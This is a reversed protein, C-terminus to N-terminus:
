SLSAEVYKADDGQPTKFPEAGLSAPAKLGTGCSERVILQPPLVVTRPSPDDNGDLRDLLFQMAITGFTRAPQAVVTLFPHLASALEIDDYSVVAMDRPVDIHAARLGEIVGIALFNNAAVIATPRQEVPLQLLQESSSRGGSRTYESEFLLLPDPKIQWARLAQEYGVRRDRATSVTHPGSALAIRHHGLRLLHETLVRSGLINDGEVIDSEIGEVDRDILVFKTGRLRLVDLIKRSGRGAPAILLGDVRNQLMINVYHHEKEVSEDSNGLIIGYANRQAVDEVGRAISTFFPNGIDSVILAVTRTRGKLLGRALANPVYGLEEITQEVRQRTEPAVRAHHNIVRSVTM